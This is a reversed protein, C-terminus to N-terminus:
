EGKLAALYGLRFWIQKTEEMGKTTNDRESMRTDKWISREVEDAPEEENIQECAPKIVSEWYEMSTTDIPTEDDALVWYKWRVASNHISIFDYGNWTFPIESNRIDKYLLAKELSMDSCYYKKGVILDDM